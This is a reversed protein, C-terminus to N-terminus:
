STFASAWDTNQFKGPDGAAQRVASFYSHSGKGLGLVHIHIRMLMAMSNATVSHRLACRVHCCTCLVNFHCLSACVTGAITCGLGLWCEAFNRLTSGTLKSRSRMSDDDVDKLQMVCTQRSTTNHPRTSAWKDSTFHRTAANCLDKTVHTSIAQTACLASPM